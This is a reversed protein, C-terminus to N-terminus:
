ITHCPIVNFKMSSQLLEVTLVSLIKFLLNSVSIFYMPSLLHVMKCRYSHLQIEHLPIMCKAKKFMSIPTLHLNSALLDNVALFASTFHLFFMDSFFFCM